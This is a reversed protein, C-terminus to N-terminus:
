VPRDLAIRSILPNGALKTLAANPLDIVEANILSLTRRFRGGAQAIIPRLSAPSQRDVGQVIVRSWGAVLPVRRQALSDIKAISAATRDKQAFAPRSVGVIVLAAVACRVLVGTTRVLTVEFILNNPPRPDSSSFCGVVEHLHRNGRLLNYQSLRM